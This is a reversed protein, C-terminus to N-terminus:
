ILNVIEIRHQNFRMHSPPLQKYYGYIKNLVVEAYTPVIISIDAFATLQGDGYIKKPFMEKFKYASWFNVIYDSADFDYLKLLKETQKKWKYTNLNKGLKTTIFFKLLIKEHLPRDTRHLHIQKELVSIQVMFRSFLLRFKHIMQLFCNGPMGDLPFIDIWVNTIIPFKAMNLKVQTNKAIVKATYVENNIDTLLKYNDDLYNDAIQLFKEYDTRPMGIDIDDDWPIINQHRVAGLLTGDLAFYRLHNEECIKIVKKLIDIELQQLDKLNRKNDKCM